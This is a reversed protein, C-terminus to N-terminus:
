FAHCVEVALAYIIDLPLHQSITKDFLLTAQSEFEEDGLWLLVAVPIQPTVQFSFAADAMPLPKGGLRKGAGLFGSLDNGFAQAVLQAPLTHPGRFFGMGGPIDKESIWQGSVPIEKAGMLYHLMFLYLYDRYAGSGQGRSKIRCQRPLVDYSNGWISVRYSGKKEDYLAGTRKTVEGPDCSSLDQFLIKDILHTM